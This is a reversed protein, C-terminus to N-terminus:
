DPFVVRLFLPPPRKLVRDQASTNWPHSEPITHSCCKNRPHIGSYQVPLGLINQFLATSSSHNHTYAEQLHASHVTGIRVTLAGPDRRLAGASPASDSAPKRIGSLLPSLHPSRASEPASNVSQPLSNLNHLPLMLSIWFHCHYFLTDLSRNKIVKHCTIKM